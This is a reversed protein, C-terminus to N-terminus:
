NLRRAPETQAADIRDLADEVAGLLEEKDGSRFCYVFSGDPRKFLLFVAAGDSDRIHEALEMWSADSSDNM